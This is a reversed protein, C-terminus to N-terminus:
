GCSVDPNFPTFIGNPNEAYLWVHLSWHPRPDPTGGVDLAREGFYPHDQGEDLVVYEVGVLELAEGPGPVYLLAEPRLPDFHDDVLGPNMSHYGMAGVGPVAICPSHQAYGWREAQPVSHFQATAQRVARLLDDQAVTAQINAQNAPAETHIHTGHVDPVATPADCALVMLVLALTTGALGITKFRRTM